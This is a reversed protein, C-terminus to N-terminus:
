GKSDDAPRQLASGDRPPQIDQLKRIRGIVVAIKGIQFQLAQKQPTQQCAPLTAVYMQQVEDLPIVVTDWGDPLRQCQLGPLQRLLPPGLALHRDCRPGSNDNAVLPGRFITGDATSLEVVPVPGNGSTEHLAVWVADYPRSRSGRQGAIALKSGVLALITALLVEAVTAGAILRYHRDVYAKPNLLWGGVDPMLNPAVMRVFALILLASGSLALSALAIHAAERFASREVTPFHRERQFQYVVGPAVFM